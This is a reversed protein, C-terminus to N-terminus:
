LFRSVADAWAGSIGLARAWELMERAEPVSFSVSMPIVGSFVRGSPGDITVVDPLPHVVGHPKRVEARSERPVVSLESAAVICPKGFARAIVAAHSTIGGSATLVGAAARIGPADDPSCDSRVLIVSEGRSSAAIAESADYVVTGSAAGPSAPVGMLLPEHGRAELDTTNPLTRVVLADLTSPDIRAIAEEREIRGERVFSVAIRIAAGPSRKAPRIQLLWLRGREVTFEIDQADGESAELEVAIHALRELADPCVHELSEEARRGSAAASLAAPSARGQTIDDGQSQPLFEGFLQKEGTLPHRTFAVGSGSVETANGFVMAQVIVATGMADDVGHARRADRARESDWSRLVADIAARLQARPDEPLEGEGRLLAEHRANKEELASETLPTTRSSTAAMRVGARADFRNRSVRLVGAGFSELFRRRVDLAAKRDGLRRVLGDITNPSAGINLVTELMGPMSVPAGSRVSVLLPHAVDGFRTGTEKALVELGVEIADDLDEPLRHGASRWARFLDLTLVFFPPVPLGRRLAGVLGAAKVGVVELNPVADEGSFTALYLTM